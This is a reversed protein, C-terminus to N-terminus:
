NYQLSSPEALELSQTPPPLPFKRTFLLTPITVMVVLNSQFLSVSFIIREILVPLVLPVIVVVLEATVIVSVAGDLTVTVADLM